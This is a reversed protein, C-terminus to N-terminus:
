LSYGQSFIFRYALQDFDTISKIDGFKLWNKEPFYILNALFIFGQAPYSFVNAM